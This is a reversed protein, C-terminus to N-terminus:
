SANSRSSSVARNWPTSFLSFWAARFLSSSSACSSPWTPSCSVKGTKEGAWPEWSGSSSGSPSPRLGGRFIFFNRITEFRIPGVEFRRIYHHFSLFPIIWFINCALIWFIWLLFIVPYKRPRRRLYYLFIVAIPLAVIPVSFLHLLPLLPGCIFLLALDGKRGERSYRYFVAIVFVSLFCGFAFTFMGWGLLGELPSSIGNMNHDLHWFIVALLAATLSQPPSLDFKRGAGYILLPPIIFTLFIFLSYARGTGLFSFLAVFLECLKYGIDYITNAPYGAMLHPDYGWTRGSIRIFHRATDAQYYHLLYDSNIIPFNDWLERAPPLFIFVGYLHVLLILGFTAYFYYSRSFKKM